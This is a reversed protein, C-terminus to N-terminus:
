GSTDVDVVACFASASPSYDSYILNASPLHQARPITNTCSAILDCACTTLPGGMANCYGREFNLQKLRKVRKLRKVERIKTPASTASTVPSREQAETDRAGQQLSYLGDEM